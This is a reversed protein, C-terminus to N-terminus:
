ARTYDRANKEKRSTVEELSRDHLIHGHLETYAKKRLVFNSRCEDENDIKYYLRFITTIKTLTLKVYNRKEVKGDSSLVINM